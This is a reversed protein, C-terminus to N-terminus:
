LALAGAYIKLSEEIEKKNIYPPIFRDLQVHLTYGPTPSCLVNERWAIDISHYEDVQPFNIFKMFSSYYKKVLKVKTAFSCTSEDTQVFNGVKTQFIQTTYSNNEECYKEPYDDTFIADIKTNNLVYTIKEFMLYDLIYYDDELFMVIDEEPYQSAISLCKCFSLPNSHYDQKYITTKINDFQLLKLIIDSCSDVVIDITMDVNSISIAKKLTNLCGAVLQTKTFNFDRKISTCSQVTDCVRYILHIKPLSISTM